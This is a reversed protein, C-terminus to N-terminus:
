DRKREYREKCGSCFPNVARDDVYVRTLIKGCVIMKFPIRHKKLWWEIIPYEDWHRATFIIIKRGNRHAKRCMKANSIIPKTQTLDYNGLSTDAICGDLDWSEWNLKKLKLNKGM